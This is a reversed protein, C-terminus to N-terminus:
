TYECQLILLWKEINKFIYEFNNQIDSISYSGDPLKFEENWTPVSIIFRNNKYSKKINKWTHYISLNSLAIYKDKRWLDIKDTPNSLLRHPQSIKSNQSNMFITNM